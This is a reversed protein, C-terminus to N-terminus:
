YSSQTCRQVWLFLRKVRSGLNVFIHSANRGSALMLM